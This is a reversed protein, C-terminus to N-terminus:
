IFDAGYYRSRTKEDFLRGVRKERGPTAVTMETDKEHISVEEITSLSDRQTQHEPYTERMVSVTPDHYSYISSVSRPRPIVIPNLNPLPKSIRHPKASTKKISLPQVMLSSLSSVSANWWSSNSSNKSVLTRSKKKKLRLVAIGSGLLILIFVSLFVVIGIYARLPSDNSPSISPAATLVTVTAIRPICNNGQRPKMQSFFPNCPTGNCTYSTHPGSAVTTM